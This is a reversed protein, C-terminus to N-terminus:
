VMGAAQMSQAADGVNKAADGIKSGTDAAAALKNATAADQEQQRAQAKAANAKDEDVVWEAPAGTGPIADRFARDTNVDAKVMEDIQMAAGLLQSLKTFSATKIEAEAAVLPNTFKWKLNEGQLGRPIDHLSGFLGMRIGMEFTASCLQGNYETDMPGFLPQAKQVYQQMRGRYEEATMVKGDYSPLNLVNLYFAENIVAEIKDIYETGWQLGNAPIIFPEMATGTREDYDPDVWTIKGAQMNIRGMIADGVAKIPPDVIKNGVEMLTLTMRQLMRGDPLAVLATPSFAYQSWGGITVWRPIVYGLDHQPVEELIVENDVDIFVAVFPMDARRKEAAGGPARGYSDYDSAPMVMARVNFEQFPNKEAAKRVTEHNKAGFVQMLQRAESRQKRCFGDIVREASEWWVCDRLHHTHFIINDRALNKKPQIVCQGFLIYDRDGEGTARVFQTNRDAFLGRMKDGVMDLWRRNTLDESAKEDAVNARLWQVGPPRLIASIANSLDRHALIPRGTMLYSGMEESLARNPRTFDARIPYFNRAFEQHLQDLPRKRTFLKDGYQILEQARNM